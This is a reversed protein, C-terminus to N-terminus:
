SFSLLVTIQSTKFDKQSSLSKFHVVPSPCYFYNVKYYAVSLIHSPSIKLLSFPSLGIRILIKARQNPQIRLLFQRNYLTVSLALPSGQKKQFLRFWNISSDFYFIFYQANFWHYPTFPSRFKCILDFCWGDDPYVSLLM